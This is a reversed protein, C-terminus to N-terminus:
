HKQRAAGRFRADGRWGLAADPQEKIGMIAMIFDKEM